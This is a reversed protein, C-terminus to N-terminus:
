EYDHIFKGNYQVIGYIAKNKRDPHKFSYTAKTSGLGLSSAYDYKEEHHPTMEKAKYFVIATRGSNEIMRSGIKVFREENGDFSHAYTYNDPSFGHDKELVPDRYSTEDRETGDLVLKNVMTGNVQRILYDNPNDLVGLRRMEDKIAQNASSFGKIDGILSVMRIGEYEEEVRELQGTAKNEDKRSDIHDEM